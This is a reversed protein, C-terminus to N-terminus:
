VGAAISGVAGSHVSARTEISNGRNGPHNVQYPVMWGAREVPDHKSFDNALHPVIVFDERALQHSLHFRIESLIQNRNWNPAVCISQLLYAQLHACLGFVM